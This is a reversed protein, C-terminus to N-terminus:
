STDHPCVPLNTLLVALLVIGGGIAQIMTLKEGLLMWAGITTVVPIGNIFVAARSAAIRSLAFNYCLFASVTAFFILYILAGISRGSVASWQIHPLEWFFAPTYFIAGYMFQMSTIEFPSRTQGLKRASVMYLAATVVAGIILMDGLMSGHLEWKFQPDGTILLAVGTLSLGIGFLGTMRTKEGLFLASFIVVAVPITAIILSAKPASTYKLGLTEFIFYLGPEFLAIFFMNIHDKRSFKPFGNRILFVLLFCSALSFRAFVLTFLPISELAIKTAVFSLGWFIIAANLALYTKLEEIQKLGTVKILIILGDAFQSFGVIMDFLPQIYIKEGACSERSM